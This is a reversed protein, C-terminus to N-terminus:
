EVALRETLARAKQYQMSMEKHEIRNLGERTMDKMRVVVQMLSDQLRTSMERKAQRDKLAEM